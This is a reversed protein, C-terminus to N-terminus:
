RVLNRAFGGIMTHCISSFM